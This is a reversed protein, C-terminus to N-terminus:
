SGPAVVASQARREGDAAVGPPQVSGFTPNSGGRSSLHLNILTVRGAATDFAALLPKRSGRLCRRRVTPISSGARAVDACAGGAGPRLPLRGPHQRRTTRRRRRAAAAPRPLMTPGVAAEIEDALRQLTVDAAVVPTREAGDNDQIEQLAVIAPAGLDEVIQEAIAAFKGTGVDDDVDADSGVLARDEIVPDLNEVNYSAM